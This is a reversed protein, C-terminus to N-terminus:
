FLIYELDVLKIVIGPQRVREEAFGVVWPIHPAICDSALDWISMFCGWDLLVTNEMDASPPQSLALM